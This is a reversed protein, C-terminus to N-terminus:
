SIAGLKWLDKQFELTKAPIELNGAKCKLNSFTFSYLHLENWTEPSTDIENGATKNQSPFIRCHEPTVKGSSM